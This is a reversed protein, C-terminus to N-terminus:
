KPIRGNMPFLVKFSGNTIHVTDNTSTSAANFWFTGTVTGDPNTTTNKLEGDYWTYTVSKKPDFYGGASMVGHHNEYTGPTQETSDIVIWMTSDVTKVLTAHLITDHIAFPFKDQHSGNIDAIFESENYFGSAVLHSCSTTGTIFGWLALAFAITKARAILYKKRLFRFGKPADATLTKGRFSKYLSICLNGKKERILGDAEALTMLSVNYVNKNCTTCLRARNDDSTDWVASQCPTAVQLEDPTIM